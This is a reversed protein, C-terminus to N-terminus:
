NHKTVKSLWYYLLPMGVIEAILSGLIDPGLTVGLNMQSFRALGGIFTAVMAFKLAPQFKHVNAAGVIFLLGISLWVGGLFRIHSDQALFRKEDIIQIFDFAGQWGLTRIGGFALNIGTVCVVVGALVLVVRLGLLSLNRSM